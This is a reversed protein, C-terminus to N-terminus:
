ALVSFTLGANQELRKILTEGFASAPTLFGGEVDNMETDHALCVAAESLMKATSGYGPDRDGTVKVVIHQKQPTSGFLRFDFFGNRQEEKSPGEGPKPLVTNELLWRTPPLAAGVMLGSLTATVAWGMLGGKANKGTMMAEDYLFREGYENGLLANSRHVVRTNISAMIFPAVWSGTEEEYKAHNVNNQHANFRHGEPCLAYPNALLKRLKADKSAQKVVNVLSAVTGGSAGGKMAKVRTKVQDCPKGFRQKAQQQLFFVGLDSPISDFGCCHVIRAGSTKADAEYRDIMKRIWQPEGTLDVYDTGHKVCAKVMPEGYLDYPGVTSIIVKTQASLADISEQDSADAILTPVDEIGLEHKVSDLKHQSRAAMAWKVEHGAYQSHMYECVIQGVFSTAGFVIVDFEKSM